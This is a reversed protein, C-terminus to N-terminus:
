LLLNSNRKNEIYETFKEEDYILLKNEKVLKLIEKIFELNDFANQKIKQFDQLLELYTKSAIYTGTENRRYEQVKLFTQEPLIKLDEIIWRNTDSEKDSKEIYYILGNITNESDLSEYIEYLLEEQKNLKEDNEIKSLVLKLEDSKKHIPKIKKM